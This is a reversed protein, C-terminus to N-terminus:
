ESCGVASKFQYLKKYHLQSTSYNAYISLSVPSEMTRVISSIIYVAITIGNNNIVIINNQSSQVQSRWNVHSYGNDNKSLKRKM